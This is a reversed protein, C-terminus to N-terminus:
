HCGGDVHGDDCTTAGAAGLMEAAHEGVSASGGDPWGAGPPNAPDLGAVEGETGVVLTLTSGPTVPSNPAVSVVGSEQGGLGAAAFSSDDAGDGGSAGDAVINLSSVGAPVEFMQTVEINIGGSTQSSFTATCTGGNLVVTGPTGPCGLARATEQGLTTVAISSLFSLLLSAAAFVAIRRPGSRM